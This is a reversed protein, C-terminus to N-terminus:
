NFGAAAGTATTPMATAPPFHTFAATPQIAASQNIAFPKAIIITPPHIFNFYNPALGALAAPISWGALPLSLDM